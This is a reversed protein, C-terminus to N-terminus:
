KILDNVVVVIIEFLISAFQTVIQLTILTCLPYQARSMPLHLDVREAFMLQPSTTVALYFIGLLTRENM